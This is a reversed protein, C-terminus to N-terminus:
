ELFGVQGGAATMRSVLFTTLIGSIANQLFNSLLCFLFFRKGRWCTMWIKKRNSSPYKHKTKEEQIPIQVNSVYMCLLFWEAQKLVKGGGGKKKAWPEDRSMSCCFQHM